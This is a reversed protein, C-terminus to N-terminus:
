YELEVVQYLEMERNAWKDAEAYSGFLLNEGSDPDVVISAWKAANSLDLLVFSKFM